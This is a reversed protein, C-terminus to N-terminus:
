GKNGAGPYEGGLFELAEGVDRGFGLPEGVDVVGACPPNVGGTQALEHGKDPDGIRGVKPDDVSRVDDSPALIQFGATQGARGHTALQFIHSSEWIRGM